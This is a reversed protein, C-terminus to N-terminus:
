AAEQTSYPKAIRRIGQPNLTPVNPVNKLRDVAVLGSGCNHQADVCARNVVFERAPSLLLAYKPGNRDAM